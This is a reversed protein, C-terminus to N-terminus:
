GRGAKEEIFLRNNQSKATQINNPPQAATTGVAVGVARTVATGLGKGVIM